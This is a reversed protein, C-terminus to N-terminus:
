HAAIEGAEQVDVPVGDLAAPLAEGPRLDARPRKRRVMVVICVEGSIKGAHQRLGVGVSVVGPRSMLKAEHRAKVKKAREIPTSDPSM